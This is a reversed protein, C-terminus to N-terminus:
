FTGGGANSAVVSTGNIFQMTFDRYANQAITATGSVSESTGATLTWAFNGASTNAIRTTFTDNNNTGAVGPRAALLLAVTPMTLVAAGSLSGSMNIVNLSEAGAMSAASLTAAASATNAISGSQNSIPLVLNALTTQSGGTPTILAQGINIQQFAPGTLILTDPAAAM